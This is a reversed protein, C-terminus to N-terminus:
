RKSSSSKGSGSSSPRAQPASASGRSAPRSGSGSGSSSPRPKPWSAPVPFGEPEAPYNGPIAEFDAAVKGMQVRGALGQAIALSVLKAKAWQALVCVVFKQCQQAQVKNTWLALKKDLDARTGSYEINCLKQRGTVNVSRFKQGTEIARQYKSNMTPGGKSHYRIGKLVENTKGDRQDDTMPDLVMLSWHPLRGADQTSTMLFVEVHPMIFSHNSFHPQPPEIPFSVLDQSSILFSLNTAQHTSQISHQNFITVIIIREQM